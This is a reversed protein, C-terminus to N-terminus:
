RLYRAVFRRLIAQAEPTERECVAEILADAEHPQFYGHHKYVHIRTTFGEADGEPHFQTAYVNEGVRFMQVPCNEGTVLLTAGKPLEDCAEKHGLLCYIQSPFGALLPDQLGAETITLQHCGVAEGYQKSIATGLYAGLLGNGSCAGLFPFDRKVVEDLLRMFDAEIKRQIPQKDEDPTSIDFPSGGVIIASYDDLNLSEPIGSTEIRLRHVQDPSLVGYKLIAQYENDSTEDEPRLQMLLIPKTM